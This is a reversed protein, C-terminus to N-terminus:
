GRTRLPKTYREATDGPSPPEGCCRQAAVNGSLHDRGAAKTTGLTPRSYRDHGWSANAAGIVPAGQTAGDEYLVDEISASTPWVAIRSRESHYAGRSATVALGTGSCTMAVTLLILPGTIFSAAHDSALFHVARAVEDPREFRGVPIQAKARAIAKESMADVMETAIFGPAVTNVTVGPSDEALKGARGLPFCAERALPASSQESGPITSGLTM